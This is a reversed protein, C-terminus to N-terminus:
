NIDLAKEWIQLYKSKIENTLKVHFPAEKLTAFM